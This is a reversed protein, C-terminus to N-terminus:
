QAEIGDLNFEMTIGTDAIHYSVYSLAGNQLNYGSVTYYTQAQNTQVFVGLRGLNGEQVQYTLKTRMIKNEDITGQELRNLVNPDLWYGLLTGPGQAVASEQAEGGQMQLKSKGVVYGEGRETWSIKMSLPTPPIEVGPVAMHYSGVYSMSKVKKAWDPWAAGILPSEVQRTSLLMMQSQHRRDYPNSDLANRRKPGSASRQTLKQGNDANYTNSTIYDNGKVIISASNVQKGNYPWPGRTVEVGNGSQWQKLDNVPMWLANGGTVDMKTIVYQNAGILQAKPDTNPDFAGQQTLPMGDPTLYNTATVLVKDKLVALVTYETFGMGASGVKNPDQSETSSATMYLMQFGPKIYDPVAMAQGAPQQGGGGPGAPLNGPGYDAAASFTAFFLGLLTLRFLHLAQM